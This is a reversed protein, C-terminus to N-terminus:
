YCANCTSLIGSNLKMFTDSILQVAVRNILVKVSHM